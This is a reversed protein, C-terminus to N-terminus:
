PRAYDNHADKSKNKFLNEPCSFKSSFRFSRHVPNIREKLIKM